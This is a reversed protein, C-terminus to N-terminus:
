KKKRNEPLGEGNNAPYTGLLCAPGRSWSFLTAMQCNRLSNLDLLRSTYIKRFSLLPSIPHLHPVSPSSLSPLLPWCYATMSLWLRIPLYGICQPQRKKRMMKPRSSFTYKFPPMNGEVKTGDDELLVRRSKKVADNRACGREKKNSVM